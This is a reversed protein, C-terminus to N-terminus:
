FAGTPAYPQDQQFAGESMALAVQELIDQRPAGGIAVGDRPLRQGAALQNYIDPRAAALRALNSGMDRQMRQDKLLRMRGLERIEQEREFAAGVRRGTVLEDAGKFLPLGVESVGFGVTGMAGLGALIPHAAGFEKGRGVAGGVFSDKLKLFEGGVGEDAKPLAGRGKAGPVRLVSQYATLRPNLDGAARFKEEAKLVRAQQGKTLIPFNGPGGVGSTNEGVLKFGNRPIGGGGKGYGTAATKIVNGADDYWVPIVRNGGGVVRLGQPQRGLQKSVKAVSRIKLIDASVKTLGVESAKRALLTSLSGAEGAGLRGILSALARGAVAIPPM